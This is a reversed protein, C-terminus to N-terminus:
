PYFEIYNPFSKINIKKDKFYVNIKKDTIGSIDYIRRIMLSLM